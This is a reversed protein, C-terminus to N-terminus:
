VNRSRNRSAQCFYVTHCDCFANRCHWCIPGTCRCSKETQDTVLENLILLAGFVPAITTGLSNLAQTLNLRASATKSPGLISVYPNASVQLITIGSALVFLGALFLGYSIVTSAPYFMLAGLGAVFLGLVIGRQYGIKGIIMGAPVSMLAYAGFFTFQILMTQTYNLDFLAKLHPILIDNLCTIFGWMFFLSTLMILASNYNKSTDNNLEVNGPSSIGSAM